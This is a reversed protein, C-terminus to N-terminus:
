RSFVNKVLLIAFLIYAFGFIGTSGWQLTDPVPGDTPTGQLAQVTASTQMKYMKSADVISSIGMAVFIMAITGAFFPVARSFAEAM